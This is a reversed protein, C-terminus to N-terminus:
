VLSVDLVILGFALSAAGLYALNILANPKSATPSLVSLFFAAPLLLAAAPITSRVAFKWPAPLDFQDVYLLAVLSLIVLVGEHPRGTHM